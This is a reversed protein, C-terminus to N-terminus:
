SVRHLSASLYPPSLDHLYRYVRTIVKFNVRDVGSLWHLEIFTPTVHDYRRFIHILRTAAHHYQYQPLGCLVVNGYELQSLALSVVLSHRYAAYQHPHVSCLRNLVHLPTKPLQSQRLASTCWVLEAMNKNLQLRNFCMWLAVDDLHLTGSTTELPIHLWNRVM